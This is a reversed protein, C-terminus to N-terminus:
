KPAGTYQLVDGCNVLRVMIRAAEYVVGFWLLEGEPRGGPRLNSGAIGCWSTIGM